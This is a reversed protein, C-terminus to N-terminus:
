YMSLRRGPPVQVSLQKQITLL